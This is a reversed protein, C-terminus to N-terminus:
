VTALAHCDHCHGLPGITWWPLLDAPWFVTPQVHTQIIQAVPGVANRWILVPQHHTLGLLRIM